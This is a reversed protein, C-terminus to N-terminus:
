RSFHLRGQDDELRYVHLRKRDDCLAFLHGDTSVASALIRNEEDSRNNVQEAVTEQQGEPTEKQSKGDSQKTVQKQKKGTPQQKTGAVSGAEPLSLLQIIDPSSFHVIGATSGNSLLIFDECACLAAM